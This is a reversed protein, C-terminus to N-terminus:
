WGGSLPRHPVSAPPGPDYRRNRKMFQTVGPRARDSIAPRGAGENTDRFSPARRYVFPPSASRADPVTTCPRIRNAPVAARTKTELRRAIWGAPLEVRQAGPKAREALQRGKLYLDGGPEFSSPAPIARPQGGTSRRYGKIELTSVSIYCKALAEMANIGAWAILNPDRGDM